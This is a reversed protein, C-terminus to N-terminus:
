RMLGEVGWQGGWCVCVCATKCIHSAYEMQSVPVGGALLLNCKPKTFAPAHMSVLVDGALLLIAGHFAAGM